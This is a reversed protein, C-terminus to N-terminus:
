ATITQTAENKNVKIKKSTSTAKHRVYDEEKVLAAQGGRAGGEGGGQKHGWALALPSREQTMTM